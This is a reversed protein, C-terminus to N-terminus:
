PRRSVVIAAAARVQSRVVCLALACATLPGRPVLEDGWWVHRVLEPVGLLEPLSEGGLVDAPYGTGVARM